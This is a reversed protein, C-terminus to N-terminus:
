KTYKKITKLDNYKKYKNKIAMYNDTGKGLILIIDNKKSIKIAHKIARKRSKIYTYNNTKVEKIMDKVINKVKEYRTDDMTFIVKNSLDTVLKGIDKRKEKDRGGACGVVTIINKTKTINAFKLIEKTANITHAYDLILTSNNKTKFVNMRGPIPKITKIKEIIKDIDIGLSHITSIAATLNYINFKGLLPSTIKYEKNDIVLTFITYTDYLIYNKIRYTADKDFGYSLKKINM